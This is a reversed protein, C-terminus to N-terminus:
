IEEYPKNKLYGIYTRLERIVLTPKDATAKEVGWKELQNDFIEYDDDWVHRPYIEDINFDLESQAIKGSEICAYKYVIIQKESVDSRIAYRKGYKITKGNGWSREAAGIGIIKSTARCAVFGLM